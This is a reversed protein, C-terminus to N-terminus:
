KFTIRSTTLSCEFTGASIMTCGSPPSLLSVNAPLTIRHTSEARWSSPSCATCSYPAKSEVDACPALGVQCAAPPASKVTTTTLGVTKKLSVVAYLGEVLGGCTTHASLSFSGNMKKTTADRTGNFTNTASISCTSPTSATAAGNGSEVVPAITLTAVSSAVAVVVPVSEDFDLDPSVLPEIASAPHAGLLLAVGVMAVMPLLRRSLM